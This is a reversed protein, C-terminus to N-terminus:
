SLQKILIREPITKFQDQCYNARAAAKGRVTPLQEHRLIATGGQGVMRAECRYVNQHLEQHHACVRQVVGVRAQPGPLYHPTAPCGPQGQHDPLAWYAGLSCGAYFIWLM